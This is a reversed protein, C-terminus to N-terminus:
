AGHYRLPSTLTLMAFVINKTTTVYITASLYTSNTFRDEKMWKEEVGDRDGDDDDKGGGDGEM